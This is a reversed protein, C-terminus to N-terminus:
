GSISFVYLCEDVCKFVSVHVRERVGLRTLGDLRNGNRYRCTCESEVTYGDSHQTRVPGITSQATLLSYNDVEEVTNLHDEERCDEVSIRSHYVMVHRGHYREELTRQGELPPFDGSGTFRRDCQGCPSRRTRSM